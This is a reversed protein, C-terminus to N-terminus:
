CGALDAVAMLFPIGEDGVQAFQQFIAIGGRSAIETRDDPTLTRLQKILLGNKVDETHAAIQAAASDM